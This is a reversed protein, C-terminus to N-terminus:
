TILSMLTVKIDKNRTTLTMAVIFRMQGAHGYDSMAHTGKNKHNPLALADCSAQNSRTITMYRIHRRLIRCWAEHRARTAKTESGTM